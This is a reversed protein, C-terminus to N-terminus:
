AEAVGCGGGGPLDVRVGDGAAIDQRGKARLRKGSFTTVIGPAGDGGGARGRAPNDVRDFVALLEFPSGDITTVEVSQGLGGRYRGAGGSGPRLEKRRILIPAATECIEVPVSRIGSPFATASLGDRTPRAGAGGANFFLMNFGQGAAHGRLQLGWNCSAGEAPVVGPLIEALCGLVLEPLFQGIIHRACVPAPRQVNLICGAPAIVRVPALSGSNNPVEPAIAARVGYSAYANTYNMVLNIGHPSAASSGAFDVTVQDGAITLAAHLEIPSDYGDVRMANRWTGDPLAAIAARMGAESIGIIADALADIDPRRFEDLLANLRRGSVENATVYALIDGEVADPARVNARIIAMLRADIVGGSALLLIPLQLGEEYISRGDPGMGLGGIDVQHCTCAFFGIARGSRFVPSFVTIDHLHGSAIWPDNTIYHDGEAMTAGPYAALFHLAAAALSNVHGPTGTVAQAVMRGSRDFLGASLDGAERVTPSFATKMLVRAQEEVVSVLRSWVIQRDLPSGTM